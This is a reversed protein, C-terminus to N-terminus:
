AAARQKHQQYYDRMYERQQDRRSAHLESYYQPNRQVRRVRARKWQAKAKDPNADRWKKQAANAAEPNAKHAAVVQASNCPKCHPLLQGAQRGSKRISFAKLPKSEHCRTCVKRPTPTEVPLHPGDDDVDLLPPSSLGQLGNRLTTSSPRRCFARSTLSAFSM